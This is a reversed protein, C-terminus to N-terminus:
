RRRRTARSYLRTLFYAILAIVILAEIVFSWPLYWFHSTAGIQRTQQGNQGYFVALTATYYGPKLDFPKCNSDKAIEEPATSKLNCGTFRRTQGILALQGKPNANSVKAVIHGFMNKIVLSGAPAEAVNGSNTIRYAFSEPQKQFWSKFGNGDTMGFKKMTMLESVDGPVNIFLLTASSAAVNVQQQNQGATATYEVASYYTGAGINAPLKITFPIQKTGDPPVSVFDPLTLYPKLSWPTQPQDSAQLLKATGTEDQATFDVVSLKVGLSQTKSLNTLYLVNTAQTGAKMTFSEKPTVGLGNSQAFATLTPLLAASVSVFAAVAIKFLTKVKPKYGYLKSFDYWLKLELPLKLLRGYV